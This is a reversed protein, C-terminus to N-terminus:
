YAISFRKRSNKPNELEDLTAIAFDEMSIHTPGDPVTLMQDGSLRFKGTREGPAFMVAPSLYTWDVQKENRLDELFKKGAGAEPKVFDPFGPTDILAVGPAVELSGAGGVVFLRPVGADKLAKLVPPSQLNQFTVSSVVVDHGKIIPAVAAPDNADAQKVTVGDIPTPNRALGTVTHGRRVAEAAIRSGAKGTVGLIAIKM